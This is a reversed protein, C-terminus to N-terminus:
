SKNHAWNYQMTAKKATELVDKPPEYNNCPEPNALKIALISQLTGDLKLNPRFATKNKTVMSFVREEEANSHPLILVIRAVSSLRKFRITGDPNKASSLHAWILDMRYHQSEDDDKVLASDWISQPIERTDMMQYDIFEEQLKNLEGASAFPLLNPYKNLFFEVQTFDVVERKEFNVFRSNELVKDNFPLHKVAYEAASSYFCRVAQYFVKM